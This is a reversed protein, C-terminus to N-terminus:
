RRRAVLVTGRRGRRRFGVRDLWYEAEGPADELMLEGAGTAALARLRALPDPNAGLSRFDVVLDLPGARQAIDGEDLAARMWWDAPRDCDLYYTQPGREGAPPRELLPTAVEMLGWRLAEDRLMADAHRPPDPAAVLASAAGQQLLALCARALRAPADGTLLCRRGPALGLAVALLADGAAPDPLRFPAPVPLPSEVPAPVPDIPAPPAQRRFLDRLRTM